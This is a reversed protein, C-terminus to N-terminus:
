KVELGLKIAPIELTYHKRGCVACRELVKMTEYEASVDSKFQDARKMRDAMVQAVGAYAGDLSEASVKAGDSLTFEHRGDGQRYGIRGSVKLTVVIEGERSVQERNEVKACCESM